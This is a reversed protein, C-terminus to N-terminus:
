KEVLQMRGTAWAERCALQPQESINLSEKIM